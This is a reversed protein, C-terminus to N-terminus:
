FNLFESKLPFKFYVSNLASELAQRLPTRPHPLTIAWADSKHDSLCNSHISSRRPATVVLSTALIRGTAVAKFWVDMWHAAM